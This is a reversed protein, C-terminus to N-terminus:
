AVNKLVYVMILEGMFTTEKVPQVSVVKSRQIKLIKYTPKV